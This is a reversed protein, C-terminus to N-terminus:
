KKASVKIKKSPTPEVKPIELTLIGKDYKAEAADTRLGNPLTISRSFSGYQHEVRHFEKDKKEEEFRREATVVLQNGLIQVDIDEEALGPLELAVTLAKENEAINVAPSLGTQFTEPLHSAFPADILNELLTSLSDSNRTRRRQQPWLTLNM